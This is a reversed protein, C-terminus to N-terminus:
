SGDDSRRIAQGDRLEAKPALVVEAGGEPGDILELETGKTAGPKVPRFKVHNDEISFLGAQGDRQVVASKAVMRKAPAQRAQEDIAEALFSVRASMDPWLRQAQDLLKVKVTATAKARNMRPGFETVEGRLSVEPAADLVVECPSKEHVQALRAEPVDVEILLADFDVLEVLTLSPEVVDGLQAPKGVARGKIPAFIKLNRLQQGSGMADARMVRTEADAADVQRRLFNVRAELDAATAPTSAGMTSLQRERALQLEAQALEAQAAETRAAAAQVRAQASALARREDAPDLEFLVQGAEVEMGEVVSVKAIRGGMKSGVKAVIQPVVYGTATLDVAAQIPSVTLIRTTQVQARFLTSEVREKVWPAGALGVGVVGLGGLAWRWASSRRRPAVRDIRLSLLDQSLQDTM